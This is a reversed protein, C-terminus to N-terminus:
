SVILSRGYRPDIRAVTSDRLDPDHFPSLLQQFRSGLPDIILMPLPTQSPKSANSAETVSL